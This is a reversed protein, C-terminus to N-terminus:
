RIFYIYCKSHYRLVDENVLFTDELPSIIVKVIIKDNIQPNQQANFIIILFTIAESASNTIERLLSVIGEVLLHFLTVKDTTFGGM